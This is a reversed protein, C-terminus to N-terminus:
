KNSWKLMMATVMRREFLIVKMEGSEGRRTKQKLFEWPEHFMGFEPGFFLGCRVLSLLVSLVFSFYINERFKM